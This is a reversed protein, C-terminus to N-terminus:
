SNRKFTRDIWRRFFAVDAFLSLFNKNGCEKTVTMAVVGAQKWSGDRSQCVLPGGSDGSCFDRSEGVVGACLSWEPGVPNVARCTADDRVPMRVHLLKDPIEPGRDVTWGWGSVMCTSSVFNDNPEPVCIARTRRSTLDVRKSLKLLAIDFGNTMYKEHFFIRAVPVVQSPFFKKRSDM